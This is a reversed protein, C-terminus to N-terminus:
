AGKVQLVVAWRNAAFKGHDEVPRGKALQRAKARSKCFIKM